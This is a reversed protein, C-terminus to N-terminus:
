KRAEKRLKDLVVLWEGSPFWSKHEGCIGCVADGSDIKAFPIANKAPEDPDLAGRFLMLRPVTKGHVSERIIVGLVHGLSCKWPFALAKARITNAMEEPRLEVQAPVITGDKLLPM